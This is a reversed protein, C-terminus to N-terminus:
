KKIRSVGSKSIYDINYVHVLNVELYIMRLTKEELNHYSNIYFYYDTRTWLKINLTHSNKDMYIFHSWKYLTTNSVEDRLWHANKDILFCQRYYNQGHNVQPM